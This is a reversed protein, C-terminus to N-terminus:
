IDVLNQISSKIESNYFYIFNSSLHKLIIQDINEDYIIIRSQKGSFHIGNLEAIGGKLYFCHYNMTKNININQENNIQYEEFENCQSFNENEILENIYSNEESYYFGIKQSKLERLKLVINIKGYTNFSKLDNIIESLFGEWNFNGQYNLKIWNIGNQIIDIGNIQYNIFSEHIITFSICRIYEEYAGPHYYNDLLYNIYINKEEIIAILTETTFPIDEPIDLLAVFSYIKGSIIHLLNVSFTYPSTKTLTSQYMDEMGFVM